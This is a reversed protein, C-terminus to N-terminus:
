LVAFFFFLVSIFFIIINVIGSNFRLGRINLSDRQSGYFIYWQLKNFDFVSSFAAFLVELPLVLQMYYNPLYYVVHLWVIKTYLLNSFM